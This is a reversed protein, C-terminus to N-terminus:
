VLKRLVRMLPRRCLWAVGVCVAVVLWWFADLRFREWPTLAREIPVPVEVTVERMVTREATSSTDTHPVYATTELKHTLNHLLHELTGDAHVRALSWAVDTHLESVTDRTLRQASQAPIEVSVTVTDIRTVERVHEQVTVTDHLVIPSINAAQRTRCGALVVLAMLIWVLRKM